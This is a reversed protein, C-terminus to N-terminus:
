DPNAREDLHAMIRAVLQEPSADDTQLHLQPALPAEYPQSIGTFNAIQGTRARAYLGKVDRAECVTLPADVFVEIFEGPSFLSRARDREARFPSILAVIVILGADVMLRAAESVRRVNEARESPLFGLDRCLGQRLRDGDLVATHRGRAFLACDLHQALTSKGAGSLGTFWVCCPWQSKARARQGKTIAPPTPATM